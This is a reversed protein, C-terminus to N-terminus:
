EDSIGAHNLLGAAEWYVGGPGKTDQSILGLEVPDLDNVHEREM